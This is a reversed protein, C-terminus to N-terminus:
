ILRREYAFAAAATRSSVDLKDFINSVHRDVTKESLFLERAIARNTKGAAVLRLVQLERPTLGGPREPPTSRGAGAAELAALDPAAKLEEFISRAADCELHCGEEDGLDRCARAILVRVRAALYPADLRNWIEFSRRLPELASRPDGEALRVAGRAHAAMAEVVELELQAAVADLEASARRAEDLDGAALMVEVHAPLLRTRRMRDTAGAVARRMASAAAATNGQALRLLALGPQPERGGRSANAYAEEAQAFEGRLRHLEAQQYFAPAAASQNFRTSLRESALQAEEIAGDWDGNWQLIESRYVLCYGTFSALSEQAECWAQLADTWERARSVAYCDQCSQIVSCYILGSVLTSVEGASVAVMGEDLLALGERIREERVYAKGEIVRAFAVLDADGFQRGIRAAERAALRADECRRAHLHGQAVPLLLYGKEVCDQGSEDLLRRARAFWGAAQAAEGGAGLRSGVWFATRAASPMDGAELYLHHAQEFAQLYVDDHGLVGASRGLRELDPGALPAARGAASFDDFAQRFDKRDFAERARRLLSAAGDSDARQGPTL